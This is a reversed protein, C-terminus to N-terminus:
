FRRNLQVRYLNGTYTVGGDVDAVRREINTSVSTDKGLAWNWDIMFSHINADVLYVVYTNCSTCINHDQAIAKSSSFFESGPNTSADIEGNRYRYRASIVSNNQLTYELRLALENNNQNFVNGSAQPSYPIAKNADASRKERTLTAAALLEPLFRKELTISTRYLWGDRMDTDFDRRDARFSVNIRPAYAGLGLRQIYALSAGYSVRDLGESDNFKETGLHGSLFLSKGVAPVWLKGANFNAAIFSDDFIDGDNVAKPINDNFGVSVNGDYEMNAFVLNALLLAPICLLSALVLAPRRCTLFQQMIMVM